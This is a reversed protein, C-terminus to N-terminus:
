KGSQEKVLEGAQEQAADGTFAQERTPEMGAVRPGAWTSEQNSYRLQPEEGANQVQEQVQASVPAEVVFQPEAAPDQACDGDRAQDRVQAAAPASIAKSEQAREQVPTGAFAAGIGGAAVVAAFGFGVLRTSLRM